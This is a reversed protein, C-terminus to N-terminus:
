PSLPSWRLLRWGSRRPAGSISNRAFSALRMAASGADSAFAAAFDHTFSERWFMFAM